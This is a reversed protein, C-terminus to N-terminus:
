AVGSHVSKSVSKAIKIKPVPAQVQPTRQGLPTFLPWPHLLGMAKKTKFAMSFGMAKKNARRDHAAHM